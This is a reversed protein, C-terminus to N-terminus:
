KKSDTQGSNGGVFAAKGTGELFILVVGHCDCPKKSIVKLHPRPKVMVMGSSMMVMMLYKSGSLFPGVDPHRRLLHNKLYLFFCM